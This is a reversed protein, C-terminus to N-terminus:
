GNAVHVTRKKFDLCSGCIWKEDPCLFTLGKYGTEKSAKEEPKGCFECADRVYIEKINLKAKIAKEAVDSVNMLLKAKNYLEHDVSFSKVVKVM